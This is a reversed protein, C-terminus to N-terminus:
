VSRAAPPRHRPVEEIPTMDTISVINLGGMQLGKFSALRGAGLGRVAVKVNKYGMRLARQAIALGTAQAAVNTGKRCNKFGDMGCTRNLIFNGHPQTLTFLTNNKTCKIHLVPLDKYPVDDYLQNPTDVTPFDCIKDYPGVFHQEGHSGEDRKPLGKLMSRRDGDKLRVGTTHIGRSTVALSAATIAVSQWCKIEFLKNAIKTLNSM